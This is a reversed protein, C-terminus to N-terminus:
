CTLVRGYAMSFESGTKQSRAGTEKGGFGSLIELACGNALDQRDTEM